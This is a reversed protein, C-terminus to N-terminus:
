SCPAEGLGAASGPAYAIGPVQLEELASSGLLGAADQWATHRPSPCPRTGLAAPATEGWSAAAQPQGPLAPQAQVWTATHACGGSQVGRGRFM